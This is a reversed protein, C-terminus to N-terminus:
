WYMARRSARTSCCGTTAPKMSSFTTATAEQISMRITAKDERWKTSIVQVASCPITAARASFRTKATWVTSEITRSPATWSIATARVWFQLSRYITRSQKPMWSTGDAFVLQEIKPDGDFQGRVILADGAGALSVVLDNGAKSVSVDDPAIGAALQVTDFGEGAAEVITDIGSGSGFLYTDDGAGGKLYDSGAGGDLTDNGAGGDLVDDGGAGALSDAGALARIRDDGAGGILTDDGATGNTSAQAFRLIQELSYVSGDAFQFEEVGEGLHYSLIESNPDNNDLDSIDNGMLDLSSRLFGFNVNPVAIDIGAGGWRVSLTGGSYYLEDSHEADADPDAATMSLDIDAITVGPGFKVVDRSLVGADMLQRLAATDNRTILLPANPLPALYTVHANFPGVAEALTDFYETAEREPLPDGVDDRRYVGPGAIPHEDWNSIGQNWYFYDFYALLDTGSDSLTDVGTEDATYLYTDSGGGGELTDAGDNGFITDQGVSGNVIDNDAGADAFGGLFNQFDVWQGDGESDSLQSYPIHAIRYRNQADEPSYIDDAAGLDLEARWNRLPFVEEPPPVDFSSYFSQKVRLTIQDDGGAGEVLLPGSVDINNDSNGGAVSPAIVQRDITSAIAVTQVPDVVTVERQTGQGQNTTHHVRFGALEFKRADDVTTPDSMNVGGQPPIGTRSRYVPLLVDGFGLLRGTIGNNVPIFTGEPLDATSGGNPLPPQVSGRGTGTGEVLPTSVVQATQIVTTSDLFFLAANLSSSDGSSTANTNLHEVTTTTTTRHARYSFGYKVQRYSDGGLTAFGDAIRAAGFVQARRDAFAQKQAALWDAPVIPAASMLTILNAAGGDDDKVLWADQWSQPQSYFGVISLQDGTAGIKVQLDSGVRDFQLMALTVGTDLKITSSVGTTSDEVVVDHGTNFGLM